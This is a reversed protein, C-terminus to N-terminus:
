AAALGLALFATCANQLRCRVRMRQPWFMPLALERSRTESLLLGATRIEHRRISSLTTVPSSKVRAPLPAHWADICPRGGEPTANDQGSDGPALRASKDHAGVPDRQLLESAPFVNHRMLHHGVPGMSRAM